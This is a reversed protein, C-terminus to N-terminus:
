KLHRGRSLKRNSDRPWMGRNNLEEQRIKSSWGIVLATPIMLPVATTLPNDTVGLLAVAFTLQLAAQHTWRARSHDRLAAISRITLLVLAGWLLLSGVLGTDCGVRLYENHPEPFGPNAARSVKDAAGAGNGLVTLGCEDAVSRWVETRGSSGINQLTIIELVTGEGSEFWHERFNGTTAILGVLAFLAVGTLVRGSRPLNLGPATICLIVVVLTAMRSGSVVVIGVAAIGAVATFWRKQRGYWVSVLSAIVGMALIRNPNLGDFPEVEPVLLLALVAFALGTAGILWSYRSPRPSGTTSGWLYAILAAGVIGVFRLGRGVDPSWLLSLSSWTLYGALLVTVRDATPKQQSTILRLVMFVTILVWLWPAVQRPWGQLRILLLYPGIMLFPWARYLLAAPIKAWLRM